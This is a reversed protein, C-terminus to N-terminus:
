PGQLNQADPPGNRRHATPNKADKLGELSPTRGHWPLPVAPEPTVPWGRPSSLRVGELM